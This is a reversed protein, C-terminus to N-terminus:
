YGSGAAFGGQAEELVQDGRSVLLGEHIAERSQTFAARVFRQAVHLRGQLAVGRQGIGGPQGAQEPEFLGVRLPSNFVEEQGQLMRTLDARQKVLVLQHGLDGQTFTSLIVM